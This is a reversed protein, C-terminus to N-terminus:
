YAQGDVRPKLLLVKERSHSSGPVGQLRSVAAACRGCVCVILQRSEKAVYIDASKLHHNSAICDM